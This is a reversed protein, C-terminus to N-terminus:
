LVVVQGGPMLRCLPGCRYWDLKRPDAEIEALVERTILIVYTRICPVGEHPAMVILSPNAHQKNRTEGPIALASRRSEGELSDRVILIPKHHHKADAM